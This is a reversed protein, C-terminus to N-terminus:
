QIGKLYNKVAGDLTRSMRVNKEKIQAVIGNEIAVYEEFKNLWISIKKPLREDFHEM